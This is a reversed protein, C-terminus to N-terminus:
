KIYRIFGFNIGASTVPLNGTGIGNLPLQYYPEIRLNGLQRIKKEYGISLQMNSFLNGATRDYKKFGKRERGNKNYYYNYRDYNVISSVGGATVFFKSNGTNSINYRLTVPIETVSSLAKINAIEVDDSRLSNPAAYKGDASYYKHSLIVSIEAQLRRSFNYGIIGGVNYGLKRYSQSKVSTLEPAALVGAYFNKTKPLKINITKEKNNDKAIVENTHNNTAAANADEIANKLLPDGAASNLSMQQLLTNIATPKNVAVIGDEQKLPSIRAIGEEPLVNKQFTIHEPFLLSTANPTESNVQKTNQFLEFATVSKSAKIETNTNKADKSPTHENNFKFSNVATSLPILLLLFIAASQQISQLLQWGYNKANHKTFLKQRVSEWDPTGTNLPYDEAARKFLEDTNEDIYSM